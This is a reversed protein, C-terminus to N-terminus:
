KFKLDVTVQIPWFLYGIVTLSLGIDPSFDIIVMKWSWSYILEIFNLCPNIVVNDNLKYDLICCENFKYDLICFENHKLNTITENIWVNLISKYDYMKHSLFVNIYDKNKISQLHQSVSPYFSQPYDRPTFTSQCM